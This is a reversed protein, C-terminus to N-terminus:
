GAVEDLFTAVEELLPPPIEHAGEFPIWDLRWGAAALLDRLTEAARFSLLADRSGHSQLARLGARAAMRPAWAARSILTGSLLLAGAFPRDTHLIVDLALMAGQSFGGLVVRDDPVGFRARVADLLELVAARAEPLGEPQEESRDSHAGRAIDRDLRALDIMWWARADGYLGGLEMPAEPFVWATGPVDIWEALALLDDGSAGFGHLLVVVQRPPGKPGEPGETTVIHARLRGLRDVTIQPAQTM